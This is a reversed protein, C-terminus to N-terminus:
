LYLMLRKRLFAVSQNPKSINPLCESVVERQTKNLLEWSVFPPNMLIIDNDIGWDENLSDVVSRIDFSLRQHWTNEKEYNLLFRSTSIASESSDWGKIIVNGKYKKDHLQKLIETM